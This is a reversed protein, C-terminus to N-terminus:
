RLRFNFTITGCEKELPSASFEWQRVNEKALSILYEDLTTSGSVRYDTSIVAGLSDLCVELAVTGQKESRDVIKEMKVVRRSFPSLFLSKLSDNPLTGALQSISDIKGFFLDAAQQKMKEAARHKALSLSDPQTQCIATLICLLMLATLTVTIRLKDM